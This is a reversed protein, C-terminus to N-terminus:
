PSNQSDDTKLSRKRIFFLYIIELIGLTNTILLIVFWLRSSDRAASWLALGKWVMSWVLLLLFSILLLTPDINNFVAELNTNNIM